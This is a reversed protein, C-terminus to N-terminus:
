WYNWIRELEQKYAVLAENGEPNGTFNRYTSMYDTFFRKGPMNHAKSVVLATLLPEGNKINQKSIQDLLSILETRAKASFVEGFDSVIKGYTVIRREKAKSILYNYVQAYNMGQVDWIEPDSNSKSTISYDQYYSKSKDDSISEHNMNGVNSRQVVSDTIQTGINDGYHYNHVVSSDILGNKKLVEIAESAYIRTSRDSDNLTKKLSMLEISDSTSDYIDRLALNRLAYAAAKRCVVNNDSLLAVLPSITSKDVVGQEALHAIAFAANYVVKDYRDHLKESFLNIAEDAFIGCKILAKLAFTTSWRINSDHGFSLAILLQLSEEKYAGKEAMDGIAFAAQVCVDKNGNSLVENIKDIVTYDVIGKKALLSIAKLSELQTKPNNSSRLIRVISIIDDKDTLQKITPM